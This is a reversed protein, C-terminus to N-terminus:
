SHPAPPPPMDPGPMRHMIRVGEHHDMGPGAMMLMPMADFAKQQKADLQGYFVRTASIRRKMAGEHEAMRAEMAALREPTTRPQGAGRMHEMHDPGEGRPPATADLFAKLASEQEPRLQLIARIHDARAAPNMAMMEPGGHRYVRVERREMRQPDKGPGPEAAVAMGASAYLAVAAGAFLWTTRTSM